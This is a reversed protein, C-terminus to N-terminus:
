LKVNHVYLNEIYSYGNFINYADDNCIFIDEGEKSLIARSEFGLQKLHKVKM